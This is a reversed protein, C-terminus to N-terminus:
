AVLASVLVEVAIKVIVKEMNSDHASNKRRATGSGTGIYGRDQLWNLIDFQSVRRSDYRILVNGTTPNPTAETIGDHFALLAKRLKLAGAPSNKVKSVAIRIRGDVAHFYSEFFMAAGEERCDRFSQGTM